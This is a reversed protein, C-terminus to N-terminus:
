DRCLAVALEAAHTNSPVVLVGAKRLTAIQRSRVQTDEETGTVSAIVFPRNHVSTPLVSAVHGAPDAHAGFGIVVDLPDVAVQPDALTQRLLEDRGAPRDDSAAPREHIRRAGLDCSRPRTWRLDRSLELGPCRRTRRVAVANRSLRTASGRVVHRGFLARVIGQRSALRRPAAFDRGIARGGLADEAASRSLQPSALMPPCIM